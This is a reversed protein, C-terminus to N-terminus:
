ERGHKLVHGAEALILKIGTKTAGLSGPLCFVAMARGSSRIIGGTARTIMAATGIEEYSVLRFIEGFSLEKDLLPRISEITVDRSTIGTGGSTVLVDAGARFADVVAGIIEMKEDPVIKYLVKEHGAKELEEVLFKGSKDEKEGRSATDSVTVVAFKFRRPAKEKHDKVGM